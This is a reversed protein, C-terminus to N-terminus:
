FAGASGAHRTKGSNERLYSLEKKADGFKNQRAFAMGRAWHDLTNAFIYNETHSTGETDCGM